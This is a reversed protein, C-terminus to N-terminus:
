VIIGGGGGGWGGGYDIGPPGPPTFSPDESVTENEAIWDPNVSIQSYYDTAPPRPNEFGKGFDWLNQGSLFEILDIFGWLGKGREEDFHEAAKKADELRELFQEIPDKIISPDYIYVFSVGAILGSEGLLALVTVTGTVDNFLNVLPTAIRNFNFAASLSSLIERESEQLEIRHVIVQDPKRKPM